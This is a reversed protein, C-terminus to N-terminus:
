ISGPSCRRSRDIPPFRPGGGLVLPSPALFSCSRWTAPPSADQFEIAVTGRCLRRLIAVWRRAVWSAVGKTLWWTWMYRRGTAKRGEIDLDV